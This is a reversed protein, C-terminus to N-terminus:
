CPSTSLLVASAAKAAPPPVSPPPVKPKASAQVSKGSREKPLDYTPLEIKMPMDAACAEPAGAARKTAARSAKTLLMKRGKKPSGHPGYAFVPEEGDADVDAAAAAAAMAAQRTARRRPSDHNHHQLLSGKSTQKPSGHPGYSLVTEVSPVHQRRPHSRKPSGHPGYAFVDPLAADTSRQMRRKPSGHPGYCLVDEGEDQAELGPPPRVSAVRDEPDSGESSYGSNTNSNRAGIGADTDSTSSSYGPDSTDANDLDLRSAKIM